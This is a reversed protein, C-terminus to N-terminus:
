YSEKIKQPMKTNFLPLWGILNLDDHKWLECTEWSSYFPKSCKTRLSDTNGDFLRTFSCDDRQETRDLNERQQYKPNEGTEFALFNLLVNLTLSHTSLATSLILVSSGCKWAGWVFRM